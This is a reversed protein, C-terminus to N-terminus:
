RMDWPTWGEMSIKPRCAAYYCPEWTSSKETHELRKIDDDKITSTETGYLMASRVCSDYLEGKVPSIIENNFPLSVGQVTVRELVLEIIVWNNENNWKLIRGYQKCSYQLLSLFMNDFKEKREKM